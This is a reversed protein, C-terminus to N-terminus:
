IADRYMLKYFSEAKWVDGVAVPTESNPLTSYFYLKNYSTGGNNTGLFRPPAVFSPYDKIGFVIFAGASAGWINVQKTNQIVVNSMGGSPITVPAYDKDSCYHDTVAQAAPLMAMYSTNVYDDVKWILSQKIKLEGGCFLYEVTHKAIETVGDDLDILNTSLLVRFEECELSPSTVVRGDAIMTVTDMQEYGHALGGVFNDRGRMTVAVEWNGSTTMQAVRSLSDNVAYAYAIIWCDLKNTANVKRAMLYETYGASQPVYVSMQEETGVTRSAVKIKKVLQAKEAPSLFSNQAPITTYAVDTLVAKEVLDYDQGNVKLKKITGAWYKNVESNHDSYGFQRITVTKQGTYIVDAGASGRYLVINGNEWSWKFTGSIARPNSDPIWTQDDARIQTRNNTVGIGRWATADTPGGQSFNYGGTGSVAGTIQTEVEIEISDGNQSLVIPEKLIAKSSTGNFVFDKHGGPEWGLEDVAAAIPAVEQDLQNFETKSAYDSLQIATTGLSKWSYAGGDEETYSMDYVNPTASEVLYIFDMTAASATPLAEVQKYKVNAAGPIGQLGRKGNKVTFTATTGDSLTVTIVNDGESESSSTTQVVSTIGRGPDGQAGKLSLLWESITGEFGNDVAVQYASKGRPGVLSALWQDKTGVFGQQVAIAYASDGAPGTLSTLWQEETGEFGNDVAVQYASKGQPGRHLDVMHKAEAAAALAAAIAGDLLSTSVEDVELTVSIEPEVYEIALDYEPDDIVQVGTAEATREVFNLVPLDFTKERDHYTCRLLISNQGIYQPSKADYTVKLLTSDEEIEIACRGSITRQADAYFFAKLGSLGTWDLAVGNDKLRVHLVVDSGQRINPLQITAM